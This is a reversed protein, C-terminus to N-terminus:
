RKKPVSMKVAAATKGDAAMKVVVRCGVELENKTAAHGDAHLYATEPSTLITLEKGATTKMMFSADSHLMTVSGMYTHQHGSHAFAFLPIFLLLAAVAFHRKM